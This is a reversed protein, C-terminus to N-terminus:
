VEVEMIDGGVPPPGAPPPPPPPVDVIGRLVNNRKFLTEYTKILNKDTKGRAKDILDRSFFELHFMLSSAKRVRSAAVFLHRNTFNNGSRMALVVKDLTEGQAKYVTCAYALRLPFRRVYRGGVEADTAVVPVVNDFFENLGPDEAMM